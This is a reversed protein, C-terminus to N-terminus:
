LARGRGAAKKKHQMVSFREHALLISIKPSANKLLFCNALNPMPHNGIVRDQDDWRNDSTGGHAAKSVLKQKSDRM